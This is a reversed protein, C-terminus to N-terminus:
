QVTEEFVVDPVTEKKGQQIATFGLPYMTKLLNKAATFDQVVFEKNPGFLSDNTGRDALDLM